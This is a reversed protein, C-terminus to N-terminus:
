PIIFVDEFSSCWQYFRFDWCVCRSVHKLPGYCSAKSHQLGKIQFFLFSSCFNPSKANTTGHISPMGYFDKFGDMVEILDNGEPSKMQNNSISNMTCVFEHLVLHVILKKIDFLKSHSLYKFAHVLKYLSCTVHISMLVIIQFKM